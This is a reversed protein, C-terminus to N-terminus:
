KLRFSAIIADFDAQASDFDGPYARCSLIYIHGDREIWLDRQQVLPEGWFRQYTIVHAEQGDVTASSQSIVEFLSLSSELADYTEHYVERLTSGSPLERQGVFFSAVPGSVLALQDTDFEPNHPVYDPWREARNKWATPYEFSFEDHNLRLVGSLTTTTPVVTTGSKADPSATPLVACAVLPVLLVPVLLVRLKM